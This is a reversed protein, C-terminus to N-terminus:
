VKEYQEDWTRMISEVVRATRVEEVGAIFGIASWVQSEYAPDLKKIHFTFTRGSPSTYRRESDDPDITWGHLTLNDEIAEHATRSAIMREFRSFPDPLLLNNCDPLLSNCDPLLTNQNLFSPRVLRAEIEQTVEQVVREKAEQLAEVGFATSADVGEGVFRLLRQADERDKKPLKQVLESLKILYGEHLAKTKKMNDAVQGLTRNVANELPLMSPVMEGCEHTITCPVTNSSGISTILQAFQLETMCVEVIQECGATSAVFSGDLRQRLRAHSLRLSVFATHEIDSGVL